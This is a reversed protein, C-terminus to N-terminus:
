YDVIVTKVGSGPVSQVNSGQSGQNTVDPMGYKKKINTKMKEVLRKAEKVNAMLREPTQRLSLNQLSSQLKAGEAETLSGLGKMSSVQSMFAQSGMTKVLEEFDATDGRITKIESAVPGSARYVVGKPTSEIRDITNLMNDIKDLATEGESAKDRIAQDRALKADEMKLQLEERKLANAERSISANMAAIRSNQKAISIDEQIKKIDWGSKELDKVADAEAFKAKVAASEAEAAAKKKESPALEAKHEGALIEEQIEILKDGGVISGLALAMTLKAVGPDKKLSKAMNESGEAERTNGSSKAADAQRLLLDEAIDMRGRVIASYIPTIQALRTKQEETSMQDYSRKFQESLQPYKLGMEAIAKPNPDRYLSALDANMQEQMAQKRAADEAIARERMTKERSAEFAGMIDPRPISELQQLYNVPSPM